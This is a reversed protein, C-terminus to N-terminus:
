RGSQKKHKKDQYMMEDARARVQEINEDGFSFTSYGCAIGVEVPLVNKNNLFTMGQNVKQILREIPCDKANEIVCCFEDGGIRYCKGYKDFVEEVVGAARIIYEDGAAHGYVDNCKKLDNLDFAVVISNYPKKEKQVYYDYANRNYFGTMTDNLAFQELEKARRGRELTTITQRASELGLIIIFLLFSLLGFIDTQGRAFYYSSLDFFTALIIFLLGIMSIKLREDVQKKVVKYIMCGILYLLAFALIIHTFIVSRRLEFIGTFHLICCVIMEILSLNCFAKWIKKDGIQLFDRVFLAFPMGMIMLFAFANFAAVIRNEFLLTAADTENAAWLGLIVSFIGLYFLTEDVDSNRRVIMWYILMYFGIVVILMSLGSSLLSRVLLGIYIQRGMGWYYTCQYEKVEPYCPEMHVEISTVNEPIEVFNWVNGTTHGWVGGTQTLSYLEEGDGYAYVYQHSTMFALTSQMGISRNVEFRLISGGTETTEVHMPEVENLSSRSVNGPNVIMGSLMVAAAVALVVLLVIRSRKEKWKM